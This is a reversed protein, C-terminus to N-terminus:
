TVTRRGLGACRLVRAGMREAHLDREHHHVSGGGFLQDLPLPCGDPVRELPKGAVWGVLCVSSSMVACGGSTDCGMLAPSSVVRNSQSRIAASWFTGSARWCAATGTAHIPRVEVSSACSGVRERGRWSSFERLASGGPNTMM